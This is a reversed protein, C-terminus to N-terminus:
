PRCSPGGLGHWVKLSHGLVLCRGLEGLVAIAEKHHACGLLIVVVDLLTLEDALVRSAVGLALLAGLHAEDEGLAFLRGGRHRNRVELSHRGRLRLACQGLEVELTGHAVGNLGVVDLVALHGALILGGPAVGLLAVRNRVVEGRAHALGIGAVVGALRNLEALLSSLESPKVFM